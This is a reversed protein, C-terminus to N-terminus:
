VINRLALAQSTRALLVNARVEQHRPQQAVPQADERLELSSQNASPRGDGRLRRSIAPSSGGSTSSSSSSGCGVLIASWLLVVTLETIRRIM